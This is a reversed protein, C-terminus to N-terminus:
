HGGELQERAAVLGNAIVSAIAQQYVPSGVQAINESSPSIEIAIAPSVINNLPRLPAPLARAPVRGEALASVLVEAVRQSSSLFTGQAANWDLFPGQNNPSAQILATFIRLGPGQSSAHISIYIAPHAANALNARQDLTLAADGDRLLLTALHRNDLEQRLHRAFSLTVDKEALQSGLAAGSEDGGHGPDIVAFYRRTGSIATPAATPPTTSVPAQATPPQTTAPSTVPPSVTITKNENSFRAMLPVNGAIVVEAFGNSEQYVASPIAKNDFTLSQAGPSVLAERTFTMRLRGPENALVPNVPSTFNMVLTPPTTQTIQATFHVATSGVFLRRSAEHLSVPGGLFRPLLISLSSVSVLGRGNELLFPSPLDIDAGPMKARTKGATFEGEVDNFRFKWHSGNAKASVTGLPELAELLGVYDAGNNSQVGLSYNAANSYVTLRRDDPIGPLLLVLAFLPVVM